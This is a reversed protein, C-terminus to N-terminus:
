QDVSAFNSTAPRDENVAETDSCIPKVTLLSGSHPHRTQRMWHRDLSFRLFYRAEGEVVAEDLVEGGIRRYIPLLRAATTAYAMHLGRQRLEAFCAEWFRMKVALRFDRVTFFTLFECCGVAGPAPEFGFAASQFERLAVNTAIVTEIHGCEDRGAFVVQDEYPIRTALRRGADDWRWLSRILRNGSVRLFAAYFAREYAAREEADSTDLCDFSLKM